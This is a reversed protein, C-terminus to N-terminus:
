EPSMGAGTHRQNEPSMGAGTHCQDESLMGAGTLSQGEQPLTDPVTEPLIDRHVAFPMEAPATFASFREDPRIEVGERSHLRIRRGAIVLDVTM